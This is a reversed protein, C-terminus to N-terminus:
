CSPPFTLNSKNKLKSPSLEHYLYHNYNSSSEKRKLSIKSPLQHGFIQFPSKDRLFLIEINIKTVLNSIKQCTAKLDM